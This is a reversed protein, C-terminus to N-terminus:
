RRRQVPMPARARNDNFTSSGMIGNMDPPGGQLTKRRKLGDVELPGRSSPRSSSDEDDVDRSRKNGNMAPLTQQPAYAGPQAPYGQSGNVGATSGTRPPTNYGTSQQAWQQSSVTTRPTARGSGSQQNPSTTMEPSLHPHEGPMSGVVPGPAYNNYPGRNANYASNTGHTYEEEHDAEHEAEEEGTGHGVQENGQGHKSDHDGAEPARGTPPGMEGKIYQNNTGVPGFRAMNQQAVDQPAYQPQQPPAQSYMSRNDYGQGSQQYQPIGQLSSGPPTSAPTNPMSRANSLGTDISLPQSGQPAGVMGQGNWQYSQDQSGMSMGISSASTPPTPFTHARNMGPRDGQPHPAISHQGGPASMPTHMTHHHHLSPAQSTQTIRQQQQQQGQEMRRREAAAMVANTRHQNTPHYLLAGINHVFLPYL